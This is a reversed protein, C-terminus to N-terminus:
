FVRRGVNVATDIIGVLSEQGNEVLVLKRRHLLERSQGAHGWRDDVTTESFCEPECRSM